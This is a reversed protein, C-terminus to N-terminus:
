GGTCPYFSYYYRDPLTSAFITFQFRDISPNRASQIFNRPHIRTVTNTTTFASSQNEALMNSSCASRGLFRVSTKWHAHVKLM